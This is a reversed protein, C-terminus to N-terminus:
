VITRCCYFNCKFMGLHNAIGDFYILSEQAMRVAIINFSTLSRRDYLREDGNIIAIIVHVFFITYYVQLHM